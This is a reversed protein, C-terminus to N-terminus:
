DHNGDVKKMNKSIIEAFNRIDAPDIKADQLDKALSFYIDSLGSSGLKREDGLTPAEEEVLDAKTIGFYNALMEIKDIRPYTKANIWDSLTPMPIGLTNCVDTQTVRNQEMYRRINKAMIQKNGLNNM